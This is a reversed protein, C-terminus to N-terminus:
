STVKITTGGRGIVTKPNIGGLNRQVRRRLRKRKFRLPNFKFKLFKKLCRREKNKIGIDVVREGKNEELFLNVKKVTTCICTAEQEVVEVEGERRLSKTYSGM